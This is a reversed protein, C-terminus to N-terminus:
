GRKIRIRIYIYVYVYVYVVTDKKNAREILFDIETRNVDWLSFADDTYRNWGSPEIRSQNLLDTEIEAMFINAFSFAM